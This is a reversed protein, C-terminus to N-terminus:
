KIHELIKQVVGDRNELVENNWFRLVTFGQIRLWEDRIKDDVSECHQGGDLEIILKKTYCVFDIVYPGIPAQHRFKLKLNNLRLIYWLKKRSRNPTEKTKQSNTNSQENGGGGL